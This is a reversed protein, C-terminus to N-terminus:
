KTAPKPKKFFNELKKQKDDSPSSGVGGRTRKLNLLHDRSNIACIQMTADLTNAGPNSQTETPLVDPKDSQPRQPLIILELFGTNTWSPIYEIPKSRGPLVVEPNLSISNSRFRLLLVRWLAALFLGHSVVAIIQESDDDLALLPLLFDDLFTDARAKMQAQTEKPKFDPDSEKPDSERADQSRTWSLLEFSGFDQERLLPLSNTEIKLEAELENQTTTIVNGTRFARQLDSTFIQTFRLRRIKLLHSALKEAQLVGHNTLRSDTIGALLGAVNHETEGHRILFLRM